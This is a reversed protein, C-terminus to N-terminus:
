PGGDREKAANFEDFPKDWDVHPYAKRLADGFGDETLTEYTVDRYTVEIRMDTILDEPDPFVHGLEHGLWARYDDDQPTPSILQGILADPPSAKVHPLYYEIVNKRSQDLTEKLQKRVNEQHEVLKARFDEIRKDFTPRVARLVVRGWPKGLARTFNKRIEALTDELHKSSVQSNKEILDFTTRLRGELEATAGLGQINKPIEVRHRQIAAGLLRIEVYQIYPTFVRVQRSIDFPLPPALELSKRTEELSEQELPEIGVEVDCSSAEERLAEPLDAVIPEQRAEPVLRWLIRQVDAARLEIANPTEDSHVEQQVYLATPSFVWARDDCVLVGIRLGPSQRIVVGAGQLGELASLEGYGLRFVEDDCDVVITVKDVGLTEHAHILAQATLARVSPCAVAVARKACSVLSAMKEDSMSTFLNEAM